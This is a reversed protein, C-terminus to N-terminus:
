KYINYNLTTLYQYVGELLSTPTIHTVTTYKVENFYSKEFHVSIKRSFFEEHEREWTM